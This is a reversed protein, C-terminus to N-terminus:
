RGGGVVSARGLFLTDLACSEKRKRAFQGYRRGTHQKRQHARPEPGRLATGLGALGRCFAAPEPKRDGAAIM